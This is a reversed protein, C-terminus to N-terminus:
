KCVAGVCYQEAEEKKGDIVWDDPYDTCNSKCIKSGGDIVSKVENKARDITKSNSFVAPLSAIFILIAISGLIIKIYKSM